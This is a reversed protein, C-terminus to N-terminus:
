KVGLRSTMHYFKIKGLVRLPYPACTLITQSSGMCFDLCPLHRAYWLHFPRDRAEFNYFTLENESEFYLAIIPQKSQKLDSVTSM